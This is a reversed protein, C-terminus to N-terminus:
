VYPLESLARGQLSSLNLSRGKVGKQKHKPALPTELGVPLFSPQDILKDQLFRSEDIM